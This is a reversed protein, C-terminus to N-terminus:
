RRPLRARELAIHARQVPNRAKPQERFNWHHREVGRSYPHHITWGYSRAAAEVAAADAPSDSGSDVGVQWTPLHQGDAGVTGDGRLEHSSRGPPNSIAPYMQHIEAQTHKGHAHLLVAADDGRYISNAAQKAKRLVRAVYPAIDYPCPCGDVLLYKPRSVVKKKAKPIARRPVKVPRLFLAREAKRRRTLGEVAVGNARNWELLADAAARYEHARLHRGVKTATGVAGPGCNYTFLVLADFQNQNLPVRVANVAAGYTADVERMLRAEAQARSIPPTGPGVGKTSGFGITWVGPPDYKGHYPKSSFGEFTEILKAGVKSLRV